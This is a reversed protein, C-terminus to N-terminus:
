SAQIRSAISITANYRHDIFRILASLYHMMWPSSASRDSSVGTPQTKTCSPTMMPFPMFSVFLDSLTHLRENSAPRM